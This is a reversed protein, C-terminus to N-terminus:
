GGAWIGCATPREPSAPVVRLRGARIREDRGLVHDARGRIKSWMMPCCALSLLRRRAMLSADAPRLCAALPCVAPRPDTMGRRWSVYGAVVLSRTGHTVADATRRVQVGHRHMVTRIEDDSGHAIDAVLFRPLTPPRPSPARRVHQTVLEDDSMSPLSASPVNPAAANGHECSSADLVSRSSLERLSVVLLYGGLGDAAAAEGATLSRM